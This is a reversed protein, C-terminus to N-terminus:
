FPVEDDTAELLEGECSIGLLENRKQDLKEIQLQLDARLKQEEKDLASLALRAIDVEPFEMHLEEKHVLIWEPLRGDSHLDSFSSILTKIDTHYYVYITETHESFKTQM